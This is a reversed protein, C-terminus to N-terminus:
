AQFGGGRGTSGGYRVQRGGGGGGRRHNVWALSTGGGVKRHNVWALSTGGGWVGEQPEGMGPKGGGGKRHNVWTLSTDVPRRKASCSM